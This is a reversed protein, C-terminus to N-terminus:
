VYGFTSWLICHCDCDTGTSQFCSIGFVKLQTHIPSVSDGVAFDVGAVGFHKAPDIQLYLKKSAKQTQLGVFLATKEPIIIIALFLM